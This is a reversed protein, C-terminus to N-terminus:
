ERVVSLHSFRLIEQPMARRAEPDEPPDSLVFTVEVAGQWEGRERLARVADTIEFSRDSADHAGESDTFAAIHGLFHPSEPDPEAGEPLNLYVEYLAGPHLMRIDHVVVRMEPAEDAAAMEEMRDGVGRELPIAVERAAMGLSVRGPRTAAMVTMGGPPEGEPGEPAAEAEPAPEEPAEEPAPEAGEPPECLTVNEVPLGQYEYHLQTAMNLIECATWSRFGDITPDYFEFEQSTWHEDGLPNAHGGENLWVQWLRDINAHHLWFIPDRAACEVLSMWGAPFSGGVRTHIVNHPQQELEGYDGDLHGTTSTFQSGFAQDPFGAPCDPCTSGDPCNCFPTLALAATASGQATTICEGGSNCTARRQAVYLPNSADAPNRFPEPLPSGGEYDWYPLALEWELEPDAEAVAERLILEFYYLYMRHWALFFFNGHQCTDWVPPTGTGVVGCENEDPIGHINAQYIWSTPDTPERSMMLAVGAQYGALQEASLEGIEQRVHLAPEPEPVPGPAPEEPEPACALLLLPLILLAIQLILSRRSPQSM